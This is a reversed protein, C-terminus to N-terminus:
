GRGLSIYDGRHVFGDRCGEKGYDGFWCGVSLSHACRVGHWGCWWLRGRGVGGGVGGRRSGWDEFAMSSSFIRFDVELQGGLNVEVVPKAGYVVPRDVM